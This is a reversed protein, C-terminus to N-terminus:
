DVIFIKGPKIEEMQKQEVLAAPPLIPGVLGNAM